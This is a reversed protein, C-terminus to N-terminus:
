HHAFTTRQFHQIFIEITFTFSYLMHIFVDGLHSYIYDHILYVTLHSYTFINKSRLSPQQIHIFINTFLLLLVSHSHIYIKHIKRWKALWLLFQETAKLSRRVLTILKEQGGTFSFSRKIQLCSIM